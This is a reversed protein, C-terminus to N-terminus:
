SIETIKEPCSVWGREELVGADVGCRCSSSVFVYEGTEPNCMPAIDATCYNSGLCVQFDSRYFFLFYAIIILLIIILGIIGKKKM